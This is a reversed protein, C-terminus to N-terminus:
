GRKRVTGIICRYTLPVTGKKGFVMTYDKCLEALESRNLLRGSTATSGLRSLNGLASVADPFRQVRDFHEIGDAQVDFGARDFAMLLESVTPLWIVQPLGMRTRTEVLETFAGDVYASFCLPGNPKLAKAVGRLAEEPSSLWQLVSVAAAGHLSEARFPLDDIDANVAYAARGPQAARRLPPFALDLCVLRSTSLAARLNEALKGTGGGLDAWLQGEGMEKRAVASVRKVIEMNIGAASESVGVARGYRAAIRNKSPLVPQADMIDMVYM